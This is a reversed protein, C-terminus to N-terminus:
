LFSLDEQLMEELLMLNTEMDDVALIMPKKDMLGLFNTMGDMQFEDEKRFDAIHHIIIDYHM